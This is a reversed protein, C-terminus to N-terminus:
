DLKWKKFQEKYVVVDRGQLYKQLQKDTLLGKEKFKNATTINVDEDQKRIKKASESNMDKNAYLQRDAKHFLFSDMEDLNISIKGKYHILLHTGASWCRYTLVIELKDKISNFYDILFSMCSSEGGVTTFYLTIKENEEVERLKEVLGNVTETSIIDDFYYYM